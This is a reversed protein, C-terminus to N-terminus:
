KKNKRRRSKAKLKGTPKPGQAPSPAVADTPRQRPPSAEPEGAEVAAGVRLSVRATGDPVMTTQGARYNGWDRKFTVRKAM